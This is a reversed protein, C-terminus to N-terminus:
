QKARAGTGTSLTEYNGYIKWNIVSKEELIQKARPVISHQISFHCGGHSVFSEENIKKM